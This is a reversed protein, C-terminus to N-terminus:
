WFFFFASPLSVVRLRRERYISNRRQSCSNIKIEDVSSEREREQFPTATNSLFRTELACPPLFKGKKKKERQGVSRSRLTVRRKRERLFTPKYRPGRIAFRKFNARPWSGRIRPWYHWPKRGIGGRRAFICVASSKASPRNADDM